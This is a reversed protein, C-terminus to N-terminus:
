ERVVSTADGLVPEGRIVNTKDDVPPKPVVPPLSGWMPVPTPHSAKSQRTVEEPKPELTTWTVKRPHGSDLLTAWESRARSLGVAGESTMLRIQVDVGTLDLQLTSQQPAYKGDVMPSYIWVEAPQDSTPKRVEMLRVLSDVLSHYPQEPLQWLANEVNLLRDSHRAAWDSQVRMFNADLEAELKGRAAAYAQEEAQDAYPAPKIEPMVWWTSKIQTSCWPEHRFVPQDTVVQFLCIQQDETLHHTLVALEARISDFYASGPHDDVLVLVQRSLPVPRTTLELRDPPAYEKQEPLHAFFWAGGAAVVLAALGLCGLFWNNSNSGSPSPTSSPNM